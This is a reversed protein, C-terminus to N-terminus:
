AAGGPYRRVNGPDEMQALVEGVAAEPDDEWTRMFVRVAARVVESAPVRRSPDGTVARRRETAANARENVERWLDDDFRIPFNKTAM